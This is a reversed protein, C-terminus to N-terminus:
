PVRVGGPNQDARVPGVADDSAGEADGSAELLRDSEFAVQREAAANRVLPPLVNPQVQAPHRAAVAPDKGLVIM